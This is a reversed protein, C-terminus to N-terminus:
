SKCATEISFTWLMRISSVLPWLRPSTAPSSISMFAPQRPPPTWVSLSNNGIALRMNNMGIIMSDRGHQFVNITSGERIDHQHMFEMVQPNGFMWKITCVAGAKVESLSQM